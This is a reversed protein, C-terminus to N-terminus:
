VEGSRQGGYSGLRLVRVFEHLSMAVVARRCDCELARNQFLDTVPPTLGPESSRKGIGVLVSLSCCELADGRHVYVGAPRRRQRWSAKRRRMRLM